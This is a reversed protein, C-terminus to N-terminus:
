AIAHKTIESGEEGGEGVWEGVRESVWGGVWETVRESLWVSM